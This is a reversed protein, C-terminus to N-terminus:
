LTIVKHQYELRLDRRGLSLYIPTVETMQSPFGYLEDLVDEEFASRHSKVWPHLLAFIEHVYEINYNHEDAFRRAYLSKTDKLADIVKALVAELLNVDALEELRDKSPGKFRLYNHLALKAVTLDPLGYVYDKEFLLQNFATNLHEYAQGIAILQINNDYLVNVFKSLHQPSFMALHINQVVVVIKHEHQQRLTKLLLEPKKGKSNTASDKALIDNIHKILFGGTYSLGHERFAYAICTVHKQTMLWSVIGFYAEMPKPNHPSVWYAQAGKNSTEVFSKISDPVSFITPQIISAQDLWFQNQIESVINNCLQGFASDDMLLQWEQEEKIQWQGTFGKQNFFHYAFDLQFLNQAQMFMLLIAMQEAEQKNREPPLVFFGHMVQNRLESLHNVAKNLQGQEWYLGYLAKPMESELDKVMNAAWRYLPGANFDHGSSNFLQILFDNFVEKHKGSKIYYVIGIAALHQLIEEALEVLEDAVYEAPEDGVVAEITRHLRLPLATQLCDSLPKCEM